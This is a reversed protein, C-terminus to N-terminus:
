TNSPPFNFYGNLTQPKNEKGQNSSNYHFTGEVRHTNSGDSSSCPMAVITMQSLLWHVAPIAQEHSQSLISINGKQHKGPVLLHVGYTRRLIKKCNEMGKRGQIFSTHQRPEDNETPECYEEVRLQIICDCQKVPPPTKENTNETRRRNPRRPPQNGGHGCRGTVGARSGYSFM